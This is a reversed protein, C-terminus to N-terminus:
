THGLLPCTCISTYYPKMERRKENEWWIEMEKRELEKVWSWM